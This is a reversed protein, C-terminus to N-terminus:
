NEKEGIKGNREKGRGEEIWKEKQESLSLGGKSILSAHCLLTATSLNFVEGQILAPFPLGTHLFPEYPGGLANTVAGARGTLVGM